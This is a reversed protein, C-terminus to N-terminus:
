DNHCRTVRTSRISREISLNQLLFVHFNFLISLCFLRQGLHTHELRTAARRGSQNFCDPGYVRVANLMGIPWDNIVEFVSIIICHCWWIWEIVKDYMHCLRDILLWIGAKSQVRTKVKYIQSISTMWMKLYFLIIFVSNNIFFTFFFM